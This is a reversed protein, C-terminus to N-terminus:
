GSFAVDDADAIFGWEKSAGCAVAAADLEVIVFTFGDDDNEEGRPAVAAFLFERSDFAIQLLTKFVVAQHYKSDPAAVACAFQGAEFAFAIEAERQDFIWAAVDVRFEGGVVDRATVQDAFVARDFVRDGADVNAIEFGEFAANFFFDFALIM